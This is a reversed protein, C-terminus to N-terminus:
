RRTATYIPYSFKLGLSFNKIQKFRYEKFRKVREYLDGGIAVGNIPAEHNIDSCMTISPGMMDLSSDKLKTLIVSGYDASVRYNVSPLNEQYLKECISYHNETMSICCEICSLFGFKRHSKSSEPFYYLLCDGVNKIVFGGFKSLIRSMSNLFIQQYKASKITGLENTINTSNVMDVCGVCYSESQSFAVLYDAVSMQHEPQQCADKPLISDYNQFNDHTDKNQYNNDDKISNFM